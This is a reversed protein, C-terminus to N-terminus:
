SCNELFLRRGLTWRVPRWLDPRLFCLFACGSLPYAFLIAMSLLVGFHFLWACCCWVRAVRSGLLALPALLETALAVASAPGFGCSHALLWPALPSYTAGVSTKRLTDYALQQRLADGAAWDWGTNELKAWGAIVYTAVTTLQLNCLLVGFQRSPLYPVLALLGIHLVLLNETHFIMGWSSRYSLQALLCIAYAPAVVKAWRGSVFLLSLTITAACLSCLLFFPLPQACGSWLGLPAFSHDPLEDLRLFSGSQILLVITSYAGIIIRLASLREVPVERCFWSDLRQVPLWLSDVLRRTM